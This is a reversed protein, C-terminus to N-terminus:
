GGRGQDTRVPATWLPCVRWSVMVSAGCDAGADGRLYREQLFRLDNHGSIRARTTMDSALFNPSHTTGPVPDAAGAQGISPLSRATRPPGNAFRCGDPLDKLPWSAPKEAGM